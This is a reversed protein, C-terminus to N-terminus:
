NKEAATAPTRNTAEAAKEKEELNRALRKKLEVYMDNTVANLHARAEAFRGSNLKFRALHLYVGEREIEDHAISLANTWARLAEETRPPRILYYTQALDTALPFDDRDLKLALAYLSLSKDFVQQENLHYYEKADKRFMCVTTAFNQYYVPESPDLEIAKEYFAFANTV